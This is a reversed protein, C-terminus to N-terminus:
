RCAPSARRRPPTPPPRDWGEARRDARHQHDAGEDDANLTRAMAEAAPPQPQVHRGPQPRRGASRQSRAVGAQRADEQTGGGAVNWRTPGGPAEIRLSPLETGEFDTIDCEFFYGGDGRRGGSGRHPRDPIAGEGAVQQEATARAMGISGVVMVRATSRWREESQHRSRRQHRDAANTAAAGRKTGPCEAGTDPASRVARETSTVLRTKAQSFSARVNTM